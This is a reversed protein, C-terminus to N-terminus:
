GPKANDQDFDCSPGETVYRMMKLFNTSTAFNKHLYTICNQKEVKEMFSFM